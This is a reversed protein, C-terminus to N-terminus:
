GMRGLRGTRGHGHGARGAMRIHQGAATPMGRYTLTFAPAAMTLKVTSLRCLQGRDFGDAGITMLEFLPGNRM